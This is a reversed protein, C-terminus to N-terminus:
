SSKEERIVHRHAHLIKNNAQIYMRSVQTVVESLVKGYAWAIIRSAGGSYISFCSLPMTIFDDVDKCLSQIGCNVKPEM